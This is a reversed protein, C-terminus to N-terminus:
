PTFRVNDLIWRRDTANVNLAFTFSCDNLSRRLTGVTAAPLPFRLSSFHDQPKGTLEVQGIYQNSSLTACPSPPVGDVSVAGVSPRRQRIRTSVLSQFVPARQRSEPPPEKLAM